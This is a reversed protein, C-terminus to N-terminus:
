QPIKQVIEGIVWCANNYVLIKDFDEAELMRQTEASEKLKDTLLSVIKAGEMEIISKPIKPLLEIM